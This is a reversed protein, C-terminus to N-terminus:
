KLVLAAIAADIATIHNIMVDTAFVTGTLYLEAADVAANFLVVTADTYLSTNIANATVIKAQLTTKVMANVSNDIATIHTLMVDTAFVTGTLYLEAADVVVNLATRGAEVYLVNEIKLNAAVIRAELTTKVMGNVATDIATVHAMLGDYTFTTGAMYTEALVVVAKLELRKASDFNPDLVNLNAEAIKNALLAKVQVYLDKVYTQSADLFGNLIPQTLPLRAPNTLDTYKKMENILTQLATLPNAETKNKDYYAQLEKQVMALTQIDNLSLVKSDEYTKIAVKLATYQEEIKVTPQTTYNLVFLKAVNIKAALENNSGVLYNGPASGEVNKFVLTAAKPDVYLMTEAETILGKLKDMHDEFAKAKEIIENYVIVTLPRNVDAPVYYDVLTILADLKANAVTGYYKVKYANLQQLLLTLEAEKAVTIIENNMYNTMATKLKNYETKVLGSKTPVYADAFTKAAAIAAAFKVKEAPVYSKTDNYLADASVILAKFTEINMVEQHDDYNFDHMRKALGYPFDGKAYRKALGYPLFGKKFMGEPLGAWTGDSFDVMIQLRERLEARTAENVGYKDDFKDTKNKTDKVMTNSNNNGNGNGNNGAFTVVATQSLILVLALMVVIGTKMFSKTKSKRALQNKKM